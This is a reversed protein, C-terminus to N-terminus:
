TKVREMLNEKDSDGGWSFCGIRSRAKEVEEEEETETEKEEKEWLEDQKIAAVADAVVGNNEDLYFKAEEISVGTKAIVLNIPATRPALLTHKPPPLPTQSPHKPILITKRTHVEENTMLRNLMKLNGANTHFRIAIGALTDGFQVEYIFYEDSTLPITKKPTPTPTPTKTPSDGTPTTTQNGDDTREFTSLLHSTYRDELHKGAICGQSGFFVEKCCPWKGYKEGGFSILYDQFVGKHYHCVLGMEQDNETDYFVSCRSCKLKM